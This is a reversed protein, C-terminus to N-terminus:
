VPQGYNITIESPAAFGGNITNDWIGNLVDWSPNSVSNEDMFFPRQVYLKALYPNGDTDLIQLTNGPAYESRIKNGNCLTFTADPDPSTVIQVQITCPRVDASQSAPINNGDGTITRVSLCYCTDNLLAGNPKYIQLEHDYDGNVINPLVFDENLTMTLVLKQYTGNFELLLMYDGAVPATLNLDIGTDAPAVYVRKMIISQCAASM